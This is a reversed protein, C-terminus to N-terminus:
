AQSITWAANILGIHSFAQPFNGLLEDSDPAVEESLLGIDNAYSIAHEFIAEARDIQGALARARALWFTCFLFTGEEGELGDDSRYRYVLGREDTLQEEIADITALMREDDAPLFGVMAMVLNAADLHDDGYSQTFAGVSDSWGDELISERIEDRIHEWREVKDDAELMASLGIARDLAVWCMLKSYLYHRPEGRIEWIGQDKEQWRQAAMDAVESLFRRTVPDLEGLEDRLTDVAALLEGYVDLQRQNWAGNGARVPKSDRWGSLHELERETLNHEGGIGYMIQMDRGQQLHSLAAHALFDFFKHSEHPCAGVWLADLTFSADRVWTYRYDWNRQGGVVEPLSTTPAAVIAGTPFYTLGQLVRASHHVQDKWPGQYSQHIESWTNWGHITQSLREDIDEDSWHEPKDESSSRHQLAFRRCQGEALRFRGRAVSREIDLDVPASLLLVSAGGQGLIGGDDSRLIPETLGYEPRPRYEFDVDVEGRTCRVERLLAHPPHAGLEHGTENPGIALADIVVLEGTSTTFSTELVLSADVYRRSVEFDAEPRIMWHGGNEDLLGAFVAPSDFRPVCLWDISGARHVLAAGNCDALLAYDAIPYDSM